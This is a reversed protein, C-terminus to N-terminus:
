FDALYLAAVTHGAVQKVGLTTEQTKNVNREIKECQHNETKEDLAWQTGRPGSTHHSNRCGARHKGITQKSVGHHNACGADHETQGAANEPQIIAM